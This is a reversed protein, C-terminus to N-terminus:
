AASVGPSDRLRLAERRKMNPTVWREVPGLREDGRDRAAVHEPEESEGRLGAEHDVLVDVVGDAGHAAVVGHDGPDGIHFEAGGDAPRARGGSAAAM